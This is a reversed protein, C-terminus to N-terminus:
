KIGIAVNGILEAVSRSKQIAKMVKKDFASYTFFTKMKDLVMFESNGYQNAYGEALTQLFGLYKTRDFKAVGNKVESALAPNAILGRGIMMAHLNPLAESIRRADDISNIDGNYVIPHNIRSALNMFGEMDVDGTYMQKGLRPHITVFRLNTSNIIDVIALSEETSEYGLRMKLSFNIDPYNGVCGLVEAVMDPNQLIGCGRHKKSQQPFPCGFNIDCSDFGSEMVFDLLLEVEYATNAIIQPVLETDADEFDDSYLLDNIDKKRLAGGEVRIFPTFYKSVGGYTSAHANRFVYDTFGQIPAMYINM